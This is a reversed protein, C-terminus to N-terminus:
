WTREGSFRGDVTVRYLSSAQASADLGALDITGTLQGDLSLQFHAQGATIQVVNEARSASISFANANRAASSEAEFYASIASGSSVVTALTDDPRGGYFGNHSALWIAGTGAAGSPKGSVLWFHAQGGNRAPEILLTGTRAFPREAVTGTLTVEYVQVTVGEASLAPKGFLAVFLGAMLAMLAFAKTVM